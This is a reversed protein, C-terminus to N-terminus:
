LRMSRVCGRRNLNMLIPAGESAKVDVLYIKKITILKLVLWGIIIRGEKNRDVVNVM